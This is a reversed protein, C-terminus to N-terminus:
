VGYEKFIAEFSTLVHKQWFGFFVFVCQGTNRYRYNSGNYICWLSFHTVLMAAVISVCISTFVCAWVCVCARAWLRFAPICVLCNISYPSSCLSMQVKRVSFKNLLCHTNQSLQTLRHKCHLSGRQCQKWLKQYILYITFTLTILSKRKKKEKEGLGLRESCSYNFMNLWMNLGLTIYFHMHVSAPLTCSTSWTMDWKLLFIGLCWRGSTDTNSLNGNPSPNTAYIHLCM